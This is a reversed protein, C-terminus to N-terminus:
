YPKAPPTVQTKSIYNPEAYEVNPNNTYDKVMSLINTSPDIKLLYTNELNPVSTEKCVKEILTVKYKTNLEKIDELIKGEKLKVILEGPAYQPVQPAISNRNETDMVANTKTGAFAILSLIALIFVILGINKNM